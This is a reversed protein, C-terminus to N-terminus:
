SVPFDQSPARVLSQCELTAFCISHSGETRSWQATNGTASYVVPGKIEERSIM